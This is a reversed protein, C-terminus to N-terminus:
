GSIGIFQLRSVPHEQEVEGVGGRLFLERLDFGDGALGDLAGDVGDGAAKFHGLDEVQLGQTRGGAAGSGRVM